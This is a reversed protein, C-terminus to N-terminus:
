EATVNSPARPRVGVDPMRFAYVPGDPRNVVVAIEVGDGYNILRFRSFPGNDVVMAQPTVANSGTTLQAWEWSNKWDTGQAKLEYVGAGRRWYIVSGRLTSWEWGSAQEKAPATGVEKLATRGGTVNDPDIAFVEPGDRFGAVLVLDHVPDYTAVANTRTVLRPYTTWAGFTGDANQPKPDFKAFGNSSSGGEVWFVDRKSDYASYGGSYITLDSKMPSRRWKGTDFDFAHAVSIATQNSPPGLENQGKLLVLSNSGPHYEVFDCTHPPLASGDPYDGTSYPWNLPGRFPNSLRKWTATALDFAYVESGYYNSHGGGYLILSGSPGLNRALAGGNWSQIVGPQGTSGHWPAPNPYNPNVASDDEPDVNVLKNSGIATWTGPTLAKAWAPASQAFSSTAACALAIGAFIATLLSQKSCSRMTMM